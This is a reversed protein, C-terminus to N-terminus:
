ELWILLHRRGQLELAASILADAPIWALFETADWAGGFSNLVRYLLQCHGEQRHCVQRQGVIISAHGARNMCQTGSQQAEWQACYSLSVPLNRKILGAIKAQLTAPTATNDERPWAEVRFGPINIAHAPDRCAPNALIRWAFRPYADLKGARTDRFAAELRAASSPVRLRRELEDRLQAGSRQERGERLNDHLQQLYSWGARLHLHAPREPMDLRDLASYPMCTERAIHLRNNRVRQVLGQFVRLINGFEHLTPAANDNASAIDLMSLREEPALDPCRLGQRRCRHREMLVAPVAAYCFALEGQDRPSPLNSVLLESDAPTYYPSAPDAAAGAPPALALAASLVLVRSYRHSTM